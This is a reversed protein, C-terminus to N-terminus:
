ESICLVNGFADGELPGAPASVGIVDVSVRRKGEVEKFLKFGGNKGETDAIIIPTSFLRHISHHAIIGVNFSSMKLHVSLRTMKAEKARLVPVQPVVYGVKKFLHSDLSNGWM